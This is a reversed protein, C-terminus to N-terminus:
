RRGGSGRRIGSGFGRRIRRRGTVLDDESVADAVAVQQEKRGPLARDGSLVELCEDGPLEALGGVFRLARAQEVEDLGLGEDLIGFEDTLM